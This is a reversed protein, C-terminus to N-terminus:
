AFPNCDVEITVSTFDPQPPDDEAGDTEFAWFEVTTSVLSLIMRGNEENIGCPTHQTTYSAEFQGAVAEGESLFCYLALWSIEIVCGSKSVGTIWASSLNAPVLETDDFFSSPTDPLWCPYVVSETEVPYLEGNVYIALPTGVCPDSACEGDCCCCGEECDENEECPGSCPRDCCCAQETGITGDKMVAKGDEFTILTM